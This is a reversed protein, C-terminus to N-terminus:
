KKIVTSESNEIVPNSANQIISENAKSLGQSSGFYYQMAMATTAIAAGLAIGVIQPENRFMIIVTFLFGYGMILAILALIPKINEYIEKM